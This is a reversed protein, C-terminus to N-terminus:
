FSQLASLQQYLGTEKTLQQHKGQQIIKGQDLVLIQDADQVSAIRHAILLTTRGAMLKTLAEQVADASRADLASTAEDLILIPANKLVARAITIRQKQGGSLKDGREGINTDYGNELETIFEHANAIQAASKIDELTAQHNGFAINNRISDNFLIPEQSVVAIQRMWDSTEFSQISENDLRIFGKNSSYFQCLLDAITSKGSGSPGVLAVMEGKKMEFDIDSLVEYDGYSFSVRDFRISSWEPTIAKISDKVHDAKRDMLEFVRQAAALGKSMQSSAVSIAKAPNLVQSFIVLFGIFTSADLQSPESLVMHGGIVLLLALVATGMVESIPASLNSKTAIGFTQRAYKAVENQFRTLIQQGGDFIKLIRMGSIAEDVTSGIQGLSEQSKRSWRKVRKAIISVTAGATPVLILTYLTLKPSISFLAVFYGIILFPEKFFVKLTNVASQEVEQIDTTIRSITDGKKHNIFYELEFGLISRFATTRLNQIVRVRVKALLLQSLYRFTNALLVSIVVFGCIFYLAQLQGKEQLTDGLYHYFLTKFYEISFVFGSFEQPAIEVQSFLVQLLPILVTLNIVSFITALIILVLYQPLLWGIPRAFSLIRLLDRM